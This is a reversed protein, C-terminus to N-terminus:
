HHLRVILIQISFGDSNSRFICTKWKYITINALLADYNEIVIIILRKRRNGAAPEPTTQKRPPLPPFIAANKGLFLIYLVVARFARMRKGLFPAGKGFLAHMRKPFLGCGKFFYPAHKKELM